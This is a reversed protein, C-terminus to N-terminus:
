TFKPCSSAESIVDSENEDVMKSHLGTNFQAIKRTRPIPKRKIAFRLMKRKGIVGVGNMANFVQIFEKGLQPNNYNVYCGHYYAVKREFKQQSELM